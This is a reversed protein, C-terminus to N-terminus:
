NRLAASAALSLSSFKTCYTPPSAVFTGGLPVGSTLGRHLRLTGNGLNKEVVVRQNVTEPGVDSSRFLDLAPGEGSCSVLVSVSLKTDLTSPLVGVAYRPSANVSGVNGISDSYEVPTVVWGAAVWGVQEEARLGVVHPVSPLLPSCGAQFAGPVAPCDKGFGVDDLNSPAPSISFSRSVGQSGLEPCGPHVDVRDNVVARPTVNRSDM